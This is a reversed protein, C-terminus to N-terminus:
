SGGLALLPVHLEAATLSGHRAALRSEGTDAPDLFAIPEFPLLAVDGLRAAAEPSPVGGLLGQEVLDDRSLIWARDGFCEGCTALLDGAAGPRAHLWRFRGEGSILRVAAMVDAGLVVVNPGVDVQGHDATVLLVAGPPLIEALDAVIRDVARLEADHHDGLGKAHAVKDIGDYYAYVLPEGAELLRRSEVVLSSPVQYAHLMSRGLHVATFGTSSFDSRSVVPVAGGGLPVGSRVTDVPLTRRADRGDVTWRLVNLMDSEGAAMRYGLIGHRAPPLGTTISTLATATTTPAVSTIPGGVASALAPALHRRADFQEWGLGDLVLLLIQRAHLVPEPLWWGPADGDRRGALAPLLSDLCAGGYEPLASRPVGSTGSAATAGTVATAGDATGARGAGNEGRM